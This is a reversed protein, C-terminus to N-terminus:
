PINVELVVLEVDLVVLEVVDLVVLEIVDIVVLEIVDLVEIEVVELELEVVDSKVVVFLLEVM